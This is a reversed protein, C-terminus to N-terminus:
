NINGLPCTWNSWWRRFCSLQSGREKGSSGEGKGSLGQNWVQRPLRAEAQFSQGEGGPPWLGQGQSRLSRTAEEEAAQAGAEQQTRHPNPIAQWEGGWTM